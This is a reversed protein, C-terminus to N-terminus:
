RSIHPLKITITNHAMEVIGQYKILIQQTIKLADQNLFSDAFLIQKENNFQQTSIHLPREHNFPRAAAIKLLLDTNIQLLDFPYAKISTLNADLSLKIPLRNKFLPQCLHLAKELYENWNCFCTENEEPRAFVQLSRILRTIDNIKNQLTKHGLSETELKVVSLANNIEHTIARILTELNALKNARSLAWNLDMDKTDM